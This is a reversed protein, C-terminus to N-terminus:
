YGGMDEERSARAKNWPHHADMPLGDVGHGDLRGGKEQSQKISNHCRACLPQWNAMDWFRVPDNRHPIIHDVVTAPSRRGM